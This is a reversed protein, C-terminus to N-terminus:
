CFMGCFLNPLVTLTLSSAQRRGKEEEEERRRRRRKGRRGKVM